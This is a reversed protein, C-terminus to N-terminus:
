LEPEVESIDVEGDNAGVVMLTGDTGMMFGTRRTRRKRKKLKALQSTAASEVGLTLM